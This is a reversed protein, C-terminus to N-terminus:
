AAVNAKAGFIKLFWLVLAHGPAMPQNLKQWAAEFRARERSVWDSAQAQKSWLVVLHDCDLLSGLIQSEWNTGARLSVRDLFCDFGLRNLSETIKIAWAQDAHSYSIFVKSM